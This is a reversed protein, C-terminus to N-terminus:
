AFNAAAYHGGAWTLPNGGFGYVRSHRKPIRALTRAAPALRSLRVAHQKLQFTAEHFSHTAHWYGRTADEDIKHM